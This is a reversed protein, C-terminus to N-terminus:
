RRAEPFLLLDPLSTAFYDISGDPLRAPPPETASRVEGLSSPPDGARDPDGSAICAREWVAIARGEGGEWPRFRRSELLAMAEAARDEDVLLGAVEIALDDRELAREPLRALRVAGPAGSRKLLQDSEYWLRADDPAIELAWAYHALAAPVDDDVVVCGIAVNRQTIADDPCLRLAARWHDLGEPRRGVAYLLTGLLAHAVADSPDRELAHRLADHDDLGSPFSLRAGATRAKEQARGAGDLLARDRLAAARYWAMARADGAETADMGSARAFCDLADVVEGMEALDTGIDLLTFADGVDADGDLLMLLADLPDIRRAATLAVEADFWRHLRRLLIVRLALARLDEGDRQLAEEVHGLADAHRAASADLLALQFAAEHRVDASWRAKAFAAHADRRRGLRSLVLARLYHAQGSAPTGNLATLRALARDVAHLAEEYRAAALLRRARTLNADVHGPDRALAEHIYPEPSRTPHRYQELHAAVLMLEDVTAISRPPLPETAPLPAPAPTRRAAAWSTRDAVTLSVRWPEVPSDLEVRRLFPRQPALDAIWEAIPTGDLEVRIPVSGAGVTAAVGIDVECGEVGLRLAFDRDAHQPVGIDGYPYLYHSFAKTEGPAIHSFDPQNDSFAGAMLEIYPGDEDTLHAHWADGFPASGWTWQKKGPVITPDAWHVFGAAARHDYGGFFAGETRTVMFSTPVPIDRFRDLRDRGPRRTYDVGYYPRDAVPYSTVARRAHDAVWEVDPPFFSQYDDHVHVAINAWWLFTQTRSTRNHLRVVIEILSSGPRLRVGHMGKMRTLPDHDSFWATVAGDADETIAVRTPLHTGPRHHQPWNFEVGGSVWPGTLGVLAPKIVRNRYLFDHARFKDYGLHIRGGLAPLLMLRVHENELHVADWLADVPADAIQEVIPLPYVRGSSGQYVREDFFMPLAEPAGVPYTPIVVPERWGIPQGVALRAALREPPDPLLSSRM